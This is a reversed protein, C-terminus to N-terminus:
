HFIPISTAAFCLIDIEAVNMRQETREGEYMCENKRKQIITVARAAAFLSGSPAAFISM